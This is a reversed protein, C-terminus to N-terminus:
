LCLVEEIIAEIDAVATQARKGMGYVSTGEVAASRYAARRQMDADLVPMDFAAVAERMARSLTNRTEM